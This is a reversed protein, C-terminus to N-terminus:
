PMSNRLYIILDVRAAEIMARQRWKNRLWAAALDGAIVYALL